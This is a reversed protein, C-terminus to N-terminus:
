PTPVRSAILKDIRRGDLDVVEFRWGEATFAEGTAPLRRALALIFGAATQYDRPTPLAFGLLDAMEDASLDGALLWSGDERRVAGPEAEDRPPTGAIAEMINAPTVVGEFHGYEDHVLAM